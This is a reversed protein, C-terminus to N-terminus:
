KVLADGIIDIADTIVDIGYYIKEKWYHNKARSVDIILISGDKAKEIEHTINFRQYHRIIYDFDYSPDKIFLYIYGKTIYVSDPIFTKFYRELSGIDGILIDKKKKHFTKRMKQFQFTKTKKSFITKKGKEKTSRSLLDCITIAHNEHIAQIM